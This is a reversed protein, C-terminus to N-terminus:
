GRHYAEYTSPGVAICMPVIAQEPDLDAKKCAEVAEYLKECLGWPTHFWVEWKTIREDTRDGRLIKNGDFIIM